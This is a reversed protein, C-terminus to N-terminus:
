KVKFIEYLLEIAAGSLGNEKNAELIKAMDEKSIPQIPFEVKKSIAAMWRTEIMKNKREETDAKIESLEERVKSLEKMHRGASINVDILNQSVEQPINKHIIIMNKVVSNIDAITAYSKMNDVEPQQTDKVQIEESKTIPTKEEQRKVEM